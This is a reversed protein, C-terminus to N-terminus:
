ITIDTTCLKDKTKIISVMKIFIDNLWKSWDSLITVKIM